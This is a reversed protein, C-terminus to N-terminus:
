ISRSLQRVKAWKLTSRIIDDYVRMVTTTIASTCPKFIRTFQYNFAMTQLLWLNIIYRIVFVKNM